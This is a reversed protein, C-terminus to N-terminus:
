LNLKISTLVTNFENKLDSPASVLVIWKGKQFAAYDSAYLGLDSHYKFAPVGAVTAATLASSPEDAHYNSYANNSTKIWQELSLSKPNNIFTIVVSEPGEGGIGAEARIIAQRVPGDPAMVFSHFINQESQEHNDFLLYDQPYNFSIGFEDSTYSKLGSKVAGSARYIGVAAYTKGDILVEPSTTSNPPHNTDVFVENHVSLKSVAIGIGCLLVIGFVVLLVKKHKSNAMLLM